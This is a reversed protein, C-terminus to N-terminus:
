RSREGNDQEAEDDLRDLVGVLSSDVLLEEDLEDDQYEIVGIAPPRELVPVEFQEGPTFVKGTREEEEKRRRRMRATPASVRRPANRVPAGSPAGSTAGFPTGTGPAWGAPMRFGTAAGPMSGIGGRMMGLAVLSGVGGNLGALTSSQPAGLLQDTLSSPGDTGSYGDAPSSGIDPTAQEPLTQSPDMGSSDGGSPDSGGGDGGSDGGGSDSGGSDGGSQTGDGTPQAPHDSLLQSNPGNEALDRLPGSPDLSPAFGGGTPVVIAPPPVIPVGAMESVIAVAGVEYYAMSLAAQDWVDMYAGLAIALKAGAVIQTPGGTSGIFEAVAEVLNTEVLTILPLSPMLGLVTTHLEAGADALKALGEAIMTQGRVWENHNRFASQASESGLGGPWAAALESLSGDTSSAAAALASEVGRYAASTNVLPVAGQGSHLITWNVRPPSAGYEVFPM